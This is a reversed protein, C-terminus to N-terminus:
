QSHVPDVLSEFRELSPQGVGLPVVSRKDSVDSHDPRTDEQRGSPQVFRQGLRVASDNVGFVGPHRKRRALQHLHLRLDPQAPTVHGQNPCRGVLDGGHHREPTGEWLVPPHEGQRGFCFPVQLFRYRGHGLGHSRQSGPVEVDPHRVVLVQRAQNGQGQAGAVSGRGAHHRACRRVKGIAVGSNRAQGSGCRMSGPQDLLGLRM